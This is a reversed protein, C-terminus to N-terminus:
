VRFGFGLGWVGFGFGRIMSFHRAFLNLNILQFAALLPVQGVEFCLLLNFALLCSTGIAAGHCSTTTANAITPAGCYDDFNSNFAISSPNRSQAITMSYGAALHLRQHQDAVVLPSPM